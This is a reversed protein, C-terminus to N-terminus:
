WPTSIRYLVRLLENQTSINMRSYARRRFTLVTNISIGLTLAIAESSLGIAILSCVCRERKTLGPYYTELATEFIEQESRGLGHMRRLEAHKLIISTLIETNELISDITNENFEGFKERRHFSIKILNGDVRSVVSLRHGVDTGTYCDDLFSQNSIDARSLAVALRARPAKKHELFFNSPDSRWHEVEYKQAARKAEEGRDNAFLGIHQPDQKGSFTFATLHHCHLVQSCVSSLSAEFRDSGIDDVLNAIGSVFREKENSSPGREIILM